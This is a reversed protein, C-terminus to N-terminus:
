HGKFFFIFVTAAVLGLVLWFIHSRKKLVEEHAFLHEAVIFTYAGFTLADIYPELGEPLEGGIVGILWGIAIGSIAPLVVKWAKFGFGRFVVVLASQRFIEHIIIGVLVSSFVYKNGIMYVGYLAFGDVLPHLVNATFLTAGISKDVKSDGDHTHEHTYHDAVKKSSWLVFILLTVAFIATVINELIHPMLSIGLVAICGIVFTQIYKM